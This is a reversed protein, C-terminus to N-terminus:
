NVECQGWRVACPEFNMLFFVHTDGTDEHGSSWGPGTRDRTIASNAGPASALARKSLKEPWDHSRATTSVRWLARIPAVDQRGTEAAGGGQQADGCREM